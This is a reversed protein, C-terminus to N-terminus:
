PPLCPNNERESQGKSKWGRIVRCYLLRQQCMCSVHGERRLPQRAIDVEIRAVEHVLPDEQDKEVPQPNHNREIRDINRCVVNEIGEPHPRRCQPLLLRFSPPWPQARRATMAGRM